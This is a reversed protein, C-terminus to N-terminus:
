DQRGIFRSIGGLDALARQVLERPEGNRVVTTQPLESHSAVRHDRRAQEIAEPAPRACRASLWYGGGAAVAAIGGARLLQLMAERRTLSQSSNSNTDNAM